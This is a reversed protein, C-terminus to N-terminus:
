ITDDYLACKSVTYNSWDLGKATLTVIVPLSLKTRQAQLATLQGSVALEIVVKLQLIGVDDHSSWYTCVCTILFNKKKKQYKLM